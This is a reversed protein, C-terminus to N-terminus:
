NNFTSKIVGKNIPSRMKVYRNEYVKRMHGLNDNFLKDMAAASSGDSRFLYAYMMAGNTIVPRWQAPIDPVDDAASLEVPTRYYEYLITYNDDPAPYIGFSRDPYRFVNKPVGTTVGVSDLDVESLMEEYDQEALYINNVSGASNKVVRFSDMRIIQAEDPFSYQVQGVVVPLTQKVFYWPWRTEQHSIHQIAANVAEKAQSYWGDASAFNAETLPVENLRYNLSNVLGLFNYPEM